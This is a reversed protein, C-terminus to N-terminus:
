KGESRMLRFQLVAFGSIVLFLLWSMSSAYGMRYNNFATDYIYQVLSRTAFEPGGRTVLFTQGFIQFAGIINMVVVFLLVPRMQPLRVHWFTQASTAGDLAAAEDYQPPLGRLAALLTIMPGGLTWWLTMLIISFTAWSPQSLWPAQFGTPKLLANFIGFDPNYFWRWLIGVVSVTLMGPLYFAARYFGQRKAPASNIGVAVLLALGVTGPVIFAVMKFTAGLAKWFYNDHLAENFNGAGIFRPPASSLLDWRFVSLRLGYLLPTVIFLAFLCLYPLVFFWGSMRYWFRSQTKPPTQSSQTPAAISM